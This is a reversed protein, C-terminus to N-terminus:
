GTLKTELALLKQKTDIGGVGSYGTMKGNSGVVRHCPILLPWRNKAMAGGVARAAGPSGVKDALEGYTMTCAPKIKYCHRLVKQQFASVGHWDLLRLDWFFEGTEFYDQVAQELKLAAPPLDQASSAKSSKSRGRVFEFSYLGRETWCAQFPGVPTEIRQLLTDTAVTTM